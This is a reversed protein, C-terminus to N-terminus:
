SGFSVGKTTGAAFSLVRDSQKLDIALPTSGAKGLSMGKTTDLTINVNWGKSKSWGAKATASMGVKMGMNGAFQSSGSLSKLGEGFATYKLAEPGISMGAVMGAVRSMEPSSVQNNAKHIMNSLGNAMDTLWEAGILVEESFDGLSMTKSIGANVYFEDFSNNKFVLNLGGSMKAGLSAVNQSVGLSVMAKSSDKVSLEKDDANEKGIKKSYDYSASAKGNGLFTDFGADVGAGVTVDISDKEDMGAITEEASEGTMIANTMADRIKDPAHVASCANELVMRLTLLFENFIEEASDGTIKLSGKIKAQFYALFKPLWGGGEAGASAKLGIESALTASLKAGTRRVEVSLAPILKVDIVGISYIPFAGTIKL